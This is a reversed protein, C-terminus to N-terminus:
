DCVYRGCHQLSVATNDPCQLLGQERAIPGSTQFDLLTCTLAYSCTCTRSHYDHLSDVTLFVYVCVCVGFIYFYKGIYVGFKVLIRVSLFWSYVDCM